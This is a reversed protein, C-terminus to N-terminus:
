FNSDRLLAYVRSVPLGVVNFYCGEIRDVFKSALGQIGYAGAKDLPEGSAAYEAIEDESMPRFVVQTAAVGVQAAVGDFLCYGTLVQHARGALRTLMREADAPDAPKGLMENDVVVTTDAALVVEGARWAARAKEEALRAVYVDPAERPRPTEDVAAPRADFVLGAAALLERRRPSASALVLKLPM